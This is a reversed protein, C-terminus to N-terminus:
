GYKNFGVRYEAKYLASNDEDKGLAILTSPGTQTGDSLTKGQLFTDLIDAIENLRTQGEGSPVFITCIVIGSIGFSGYYFRQENGLIELRIFENPQYGDYNVPIIVLETAIWSPTVFIAEIEDQVDSFKGM